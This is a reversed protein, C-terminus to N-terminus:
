SRVEAARLENDLLRVLHEVIREVSRFPSQSQGANLVQEGAVAVAVGYEDVVANQLRFVLEVLGLSDLGDLNGTEGIPLQEGEPASANMAELVGVVTERVRKRTFSM